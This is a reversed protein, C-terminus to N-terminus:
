AIFGNRVPDGIFVAVIPTTQTASKAARATMDGGVAVLVTVPRGALQMAQAPLRDYEGDAWLYEVLVNQGETLGHEALGRRFADILHASEGESRASLFGINPMKPPQARAAVPWAAAGGVLTMFERRRM